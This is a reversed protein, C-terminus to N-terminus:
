RRLGPSTVKLMSDWIDRLPPLKYRSALRIAREYNQQRRDIENIAVANLEGLRWYLYADIVPAMTVDVSTEEDTRIGTSVYFVVVSKAEAGDTYIKRDTWDLKYYYSNIGGRGGYGIGQSSDGADNDASVVLTNIASNETFHWLTAEEALAIGIFDIMDDPMDLTGNADTTVVSSHYLRTTHSMNDRLCDFAFLLMNTFDNMPIRYKTMFSEVIDGIKILAPAYTAAM